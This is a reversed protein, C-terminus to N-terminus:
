MNKIAVDTVNMVFSIEEDTVENTPPRLFVYIPKGEISINSVQFEPFQPELWDEYFSWGEKSYDDAEKPYYTENNRESGYVALSTIAAVGAVAIGIKKKVSIRPRGTSCHKNGSSFNHEKKKM